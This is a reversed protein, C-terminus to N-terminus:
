VEKAFKKFSNCLKNCRFGQRILWCQIQLYDIPVNVHIQIM